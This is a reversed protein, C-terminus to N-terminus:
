PKSVFSIYRKGDEGIHQKEVYNADEKAGPIAGNYLPIATQAIAFNSLFFTFLGLLIYRIEKM